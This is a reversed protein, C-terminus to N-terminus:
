KLRNSVKTMKEFWIPWIESMNELGPKIPHVVGLRKDTWKQRCHEIMAVPDSRKSDWATCLKLTEVQFGHLQLTGILM